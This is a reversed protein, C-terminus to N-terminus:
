GQPPLSAKTPPRDSEMGDPPFEETAAGDASLGVQRGRVFRWFEVWNAPMREPHPEDRALLGAMLVTLLGWVGKVKTQERSEETEKM